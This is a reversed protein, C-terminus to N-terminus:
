RAPVKFLTGDYNFVVARPIIAEINLNPAVRQGERMMRDNLKVMRGSRSESYIHVSFKLSPIERQTEVPLQRLYPLNAYPDPPTVDAPGSNANSSEAGIAAVRPAPQAVRQSSATQSQSASPAATRQQSQPTDIILKVGRMDPEDAEARDGTVVASNSTATAENVVPASTVAQVSSEETGQNFVYWAVALLLLIVVVPVARFRFTKRAPAVPAQQGPEEVPEVPTIRAREQQSDKLAQLIYSM